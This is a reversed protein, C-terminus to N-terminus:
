IELIIMGIVILLMVALWAALSWWALNLAQTAKNPLHRKWYFYLLVGFLPTFIINGAFISRVASKSLEDVAPLSSDNIRNAKYNGSNVSAKGDLVGLLARATHPRKAAHKVLCWKIISQYPQM